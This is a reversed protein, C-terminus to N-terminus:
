VSFLPLLSLVTAFVALHRGNVAGSTGGTTADGAPSTKNSSNGNSDTGTSTNEQKQPLDVFTLEYNGIDYVLYYHHFVPFGLIFRSDLGSSGTCSIWGAEFQAKIWKLPFRLTVTGGDASGLKILLPSGLEAETLYPIADCDEQSLPLELYSTGSDTICTGDVASCYSEYSLTKNIIPIEIAQLILNYFEGRGEEAPM